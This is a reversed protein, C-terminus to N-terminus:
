GNEPARVLRIGFIPELIAANTQRTKDLLTRDVGMYFKRTTEFSSHGAMRMVDLERLGAKYWNSLCTRRLDHFTCDSIGAKAKIATLQRDFNNLPNKGDRVSWQGNRRQTQIYVYRAQPVFIYPCGEAQDALLQSLLNVVEDMIPLERREADKIHWQWTAATDSKPSVKVTKAEFDVDCWTLNMAEGKRLGTCLTLKFLLLWNPTM